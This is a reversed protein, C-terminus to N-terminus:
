SRRIKSQRVLLLLSAIPQEEPRSTSLGSRSGLKMPSRLPNLSSDDPLGRKATSCVIWAASIATIRAMRTWAMDSLPSESSRRYLAPTPPCARGSIEPAPLDRIGGECQEPEEPPGILLGTAHVAWEPHCGLPAPGLSPRNGLYSRKANNTIM